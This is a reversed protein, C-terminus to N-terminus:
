ATERLRTRCCAFLLGIIPIIEVIGIFLHKTGLKVGGLCHRNCFLAGPLNVLIHGLSFIIRAVGVLRGIIPLAGLQDVVKYDNIGKLEEYPQSLTEANRQLKRSVDINLVLLNGVIPLMELLGRGMNASAIKMGELHLPRNLSDFLSLAFSSILFALGVLTRYLGTFTSLLPIYGWQNLLCVKHNMGLSDSHLRSEIDPKFGLETANETQQEGMSYQAAANPLFFAFLSKTSCGM